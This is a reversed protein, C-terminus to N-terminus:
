LQLGPLHHVLTGFAAANLGVSGVVAPVRAGRGGGGSRPESGGRGWREGARSYCGGGWGAAQKLHTGDAVLSRSTGQEPCPIAM